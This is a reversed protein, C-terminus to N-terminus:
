DKGTNFAGNLISLEMGATGATIAGFPVISIDTLKEGLETSSNVSVKDITDVKFVM